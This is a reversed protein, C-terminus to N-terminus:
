DTKTQSDVAKMESQNNRDVRNDLYSLFACWVFNTVQVVPMNYMQPVFRFNCVQVPLWLRWFFQVTEFLKSKINEAPDKGKTVANGGIYISCAIPASISQDIAAKVLSNKTKAHNKATKFLVVKPLFKDLWTYNFCALFLGVLFIRATRNFDHDIQFDFNFQPQLPQTKPAEAAQLSKAADLKRNTLEKELRIQDLETRESRESRELRKKSKDEIFQQAFIDGLAVIVAGSLIKTQAPKTKLYHIYLAIFKPKRPM